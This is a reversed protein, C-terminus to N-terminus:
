SYSMLQRKVMAKAEYFISFINVILPSSYTMPATNLAFKSHTVLLNKTFTEFIMHHM